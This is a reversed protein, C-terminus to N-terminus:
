VIRQVLVFSKGRGFTEMAAIEHMNNEEIAHNQLQARACVRISSSRDTQQEMTHRYTHNIWDHALGM